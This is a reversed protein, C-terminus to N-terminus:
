LRSVKKLSHRCPLPGHKLVISWDTTQKMQVRMGGESHILRLEENSLKSTNPRDIIKKGDLYISIIGTPNSRIHKQLLVRVDKQLRVRTYPMGSEGLAVSADRVVVDKALIEEADRFSLYGEQILLLPIEEEAKDIKPLVAEISLTNQSREVFVEGLGIEEIRAEILPTSEKLCQGDIDIRVKVGDAVEGVWIFFILLGLAAMLLTAYVIPAAMFLM